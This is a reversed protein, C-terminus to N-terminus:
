RAIYIWFPITVAAMLTMVSITVAVISGNGGMRNVLVFASNATPMCAFLVANFKQNDPLGLWTAGWFAMAPLAMLKLFTWYMVLAVDSKTNIWRLSAGVCLLGLPISANGLRSVNFQLQEPLHMGLFNLLLGSTTAIVFPNKLIEKFIHVGSRHALSYVSLINSVPVLCAITIAMLELGPQDLIRTAVALVIYTNFRFTTQIGSVLNIANPKFLWKAGYALLGMSAMCTSLLILMLFNDSWQLKANVAANFLLAPFLVWYVLKEVGDWVAQNIFTYRNLAWGLLILMFDPLLILATNL